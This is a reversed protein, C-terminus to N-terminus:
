GAADANKEALIAESVLAKQEDTWLYRWDGPRYDSVHGTQFGTKEDRVRKSGTSGHLTRTQRSVSATSEIVLSEILKSVSRKSLKEDIESMKDPSITNLGMFAAILAILKLSDTELAEFHLRLINEHSWQAYHSEMLLHSRVM